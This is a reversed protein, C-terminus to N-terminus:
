VTAALPKPTTGTSEGRKKRRGDRIMNTGKVSAGFTGAIAAIYSVIELPSTPINKAAELVADNRTKIDEAIQRNREDFVPKTIAGAEFAEFNYRLEAIDGPTVCAPLLLLPLIALIVLYKM